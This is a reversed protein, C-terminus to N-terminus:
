RRAWVALGRLVADPQMHVPQPLLRSLRQADGGGLVRRPAGGLPGTMRAAFREVLAAAAHWCGSSLADETNDAADVCQGEHMPSVQATAELVSRQMLRPGPAILGGLHRGDACLADLTMATGCGVVICPAVGADLAAVMALFRDVGLRQPQRYANSVGCAHMPTVLVEPTVSTQARLSALVMDRQADSVVSAVCIREPAAPLTSWLGHLTAPLERSNWAVAHVQLTSASAGFAWKLRTNGLDLLLNM